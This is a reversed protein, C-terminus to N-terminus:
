GDQGRGNTTVIGEEEWRRMTGLLTTAARERSGELLVALLDVMGAFGYNLTLLDWIVAEIGQLSWSRAGRGEIVIVQSADKVWTITPACDYAMMTPRSM